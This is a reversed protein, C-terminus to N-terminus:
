GDYVVEEYYREIIKDCMEPDKEIMFCNRHTEPTINLTNCLMTSFLESM